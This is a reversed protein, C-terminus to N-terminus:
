ELKDWEVFASHLGYPVRDPLVSSFIPGASLDDGDLVFVKSQCAENDKAVDTWSTGEPVHTAIMLVYEGKECDDGQKPVVTPESVPFWRDPSKYLGVVDGKVIGKSKDDKLAFKAIGGPAMGEKPQKHIEAPGGISEVTCCYCYPCERKGNFEPRVIPFEVIQEPNLCREDVVGTKLDIKYEHLFSGAYQEFFCKNGVPISHLGQVIVKDDDTEYANVLHLVIGPKCQFWRTEGAASRPVLGIRAPHDPEYELPFRNLLIRTSRITLPFDMVIAYNCTIACDHVLVATPIDVGVSRKLAFGPDFVDMRLYPKADSRYSIHIREGTDPCTRGHAGFTGGTVPAVDNLAGNLNTRGQVTRISGNKRVAIESPLCQEMLALLRGGHEALATNCTDKQMGLTKFDLGNRVLNWILPYGYPPSGLTGRFKKGYKVELERGLTQVYSCSFTGGEDDDDDWQNNPPPFTICHIMGDGDFYGDLPAAGNPGIRLYAGPPFDSPLEGQTKTYRVPTPREPAKM